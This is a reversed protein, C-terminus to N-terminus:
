PPSATPPRPQQWATTSTPLATFASGPEMRECKPSWSLTTLLLILFPVYRLRDKVTALGWGPIGTGSVSTPRTIQTLAGM